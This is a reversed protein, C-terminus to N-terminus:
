LRFFKKQRFFDKKEKSWIALLGSLTFKKTLFYIKYVCYMPVCCLVYAFPVYVHSVYSRPLYAHPVDAVFSTFVLLLTSAFVWCSTWLIRQMRLYSWRVSEM